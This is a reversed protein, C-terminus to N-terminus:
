LPLDPTDLLVHDGPNVEGRLIKKAVTDEVARQLARRMPRAGLRPDNGVEVIKAIAEDTLEISINKVALTRNIDGLMLRVVQGLETPKLPRFLVIEDFRNLLEPRFQSSAILEDVFAAEFTELSEGREIRARITDAGANSTAIVVADKFSAVRGKNDTLKGEDLLQLLLNLINPHAKEIEDLLVVSFPQRRIQLLLNSTEHEGGSLLRTADSEQQYESMDLRIMNSEDGFYTAAIAKALETKGVGTPGLFLFSGIPRNPSSVGARSRRLANAIVSVARTQNIMRKHIDDELNLLQNTEALGVDGVKVGKTQEIAAQVSAANVLGDTSHALSQELLSIAKGPYAIDQEYRGSLRYATQLAEYTILVKQRIEFNTAAGTLAELTASENPEQLVVPTLLGAFAPNTARLKQYDIPTIALIFQVARSQMVPLLIQTANFSGAGNEFFLQADDLFLIINGAHSAENMLLTVLYELDGPHQAASIIHAPSLSIIQKHELNRDHTEALLNQALAYAHSTKGIGQEGILAVAGAGHSFAQKIANVGQSEALPGFHAGHREISQSINLGFQNLRPTFGSAWDRGIGGFSQRKRRIQHLDDSLWQLIADVDKSLHKIKALLTIAAPSTTILAAAIHGPEITQESTKAAYSSAADWVAALDGEDSSLNQFILDGPVLLHNTFFVVQWHSQLAQWISQPSLALGPGLRQLVAGDLRDDLSDGTPRITLLDNQIWQALMYSLLGLGGLTYGIAHDLSILSFGGALLAGAILLLVRFSTTGLRKGIRAKKARVSNLHLSTM